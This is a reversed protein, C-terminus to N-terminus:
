IIQRNYVFEGCHLAYLFILVFFTWKIQKQKESPSVSKEDDGDDLKLRARCIVGEPLKYVWSANIRNTM